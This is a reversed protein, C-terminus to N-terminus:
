VLGLGLGLGLICSGGFLKNLVQSPRSVRVLGVWLGAGVCVGM